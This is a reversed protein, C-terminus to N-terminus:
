SPLDIVPSSPYHCLIPNSSGLFLPWGSLDLVVCQSDSSHGSPIQPGDLSLQTCFCIASGVNSNSSLDSYSFFIDQIKRKGNVPGVQFDITLKDKSIHNELIFIPPLSFYLIFVFLFLCIILTLLM